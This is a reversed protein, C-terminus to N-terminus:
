IHRIWFNIKRLIHCNKYSKKWLFGNRTHIKVPGRKKKKKRERWYAFILWFFFFFSLKQNPPPFELLHFSFLLFSFSFSLPLTNPSPPRDPPPPHGPMTRPWGRLCDKKEWFTHLSCTKNTHIFLRWRRETKWTRWERTTNRRRIEDDREGRKEDRRARERERTRKLAFKNENQQLEGRASWIRSLKQESNELYKCKPNGIERDRQRERVFFQDCTKPYLLKNTIEEEEQYVTEQDLDQKNTERRRKAASSDQLLKKILRNQYSRNKSDSLIGYSFM